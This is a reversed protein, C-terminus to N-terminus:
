TISWAIMCLVQNTISAVEKDPRSPHTKQFAATAFNNLSSGLNGSFTYCKQAEARRKEDEQLPFPYLSRGPEKSQRRSDLRKPESRKRKKTSQRQFSDADETRDAWSVNRADGSGSTTEPAMGMPAPDEPKALHAITEDKGQAWLNAAYADERQGLREISDSAAQFAAEVDKALARQHGELAQMMPLAQPPPIPLNELHPCRNVLGQEYVRRHFFSGAKIWQTCAGLVTLCIGIQLYFREELYPMFQLPDTEKINKWEAMHTFLYQFFRNKLDKWEAM